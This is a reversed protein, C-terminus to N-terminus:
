ARCTPAAPGRRARDRSRREDHVADLDAIQAGLPRGIQGQEIEGAMRRDRMGAPKAADARRESDLQDGSEALICAQERRRAGVLRRDPASARCKYPRGRRGFLAAVLAAGVLGIVTRNRLPSGQPRGREWGVCAADRDSGAPGDPPPRRDRLLAGWHQEIYRPDHYASHYFEPFDCQVSDDHRFLLGKQEMEARLPPPLSALDMASRVSFLALGGPKLVRKLEHLWADQFREDLHTFVSISYVMDFQGDAYALPPTPANTGAHVPLNAKVWAVTEADVDTGYLEPPHPQASGGNCRAAAGAASTSCRACTPWRAAPSPSGRSSRRSTPREWTSIAPSGRIAMRACGCTPLRRLTLGSTRLIEPDRQAEARFIFANRLRHYHRRLFHRYTRPAIAPHEPRM